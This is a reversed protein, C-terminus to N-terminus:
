VVHGMGGEEPCAKGKTARTLVSNLVCDTIWLLRLHYPVHFSLSPTQLTGQIGKTPGGIRVGRGPPHHDDTEEGALQLDQSVHDTFLVMLDHGCRLLLGRFHNWWFDLLDNRPSQLILIEVFINVTKVEDPHALEETDVIMEEIFDDTLLVQCFIWVFVCLCQFM